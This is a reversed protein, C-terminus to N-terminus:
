GARRRAGEQEQRQMPRQRNSHRRLSRGRVSSPAPPGRGLGRLVHHNAGPRGPGTITLRPESTVRPPLPPPTPPPASLRRGRVKSVLLNEQATIGSLNAQLTFLDQIGLQPLLEDLNYSGSVSFKPLYLWLKRHYARFSAGTLGQGAGLRAEGSPWGAGRARRGGTVGASGAAGGPETGLPSDDPPGGEM